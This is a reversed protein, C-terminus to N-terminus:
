VAAGPKAVVRVFADFVRDCWWTRWATIQALAAAPTRTAEGGRPIILGDYVDLIGVIQAALPIADGRRGDPYGSGDVHEHHWRIIPKIPWPFEVGELLEAGWLPHRELIAQESPTLAGPKSLIEHPVRLKGVDHLYAGLLVTKEEVEDLGLARAMRVAHEAVRECHGFTDHDSAEISNGWARVVALYTGELEAVKSGICVVEERADLRRYCRYATNLLRLAQVNRGTAQYLLALERASEAETLVAGSATALDIATRLRAEALEPRSIERYMMGLVRYADAKAGNAGIQDFISLAAEADQRANEFRQREVDVEAHSVHCLGQLYFDNVWGAVALSMRFYRCAEDFQDLQANAKGMNHFAVACGHEDGAAHYSEFARRYHELARGVDGRINAVIGLNQEARARIRPDAKGVTIARLFHKSADDPAGSTLELGGLTNLAEALLLDDGARAAAELSRRCLTRAADRQDRHHRIVALRRSAEALVVDAGDIEAAAIASEYRAIAESLRGANEHERAMALLAAGIGPILLGRLTSEGPSPM